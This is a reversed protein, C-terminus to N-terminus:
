CSMHIVQTDLVVNCDLNTDTTTASSEGLLAADVDFGDLAHNGVERSQMFYSVDHVRLPTTPTKSQLLFVVGPIPGDFVSLNVRVTGDLM